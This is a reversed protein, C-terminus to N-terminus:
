SRIEGPSFLLASNGTRGAWPICDRQSAWYDEADRRVRRFGRLSHTFFLGGNRFEAIGRQVFQTARKESTFNAEGAIPNLIRVKASKM